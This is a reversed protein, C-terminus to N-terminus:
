CPLHMDAPDCFLVLLNDVLWGTMRGDAVVKVGLRELTLKRDAKEVRSWQRRVLCYGWGIIIVLCLLPSASFSRGHAVISHRAFVATTNCGRQITTNTSHLQSTAKLDM